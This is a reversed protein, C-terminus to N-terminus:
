PQSVARLRSAVQERTHMKGEVRVRHLSPSCIFDAAAPLYISADAADAWFKWSSKLWPCWDTHGEGSGAAGCECAAEEARECMVSPDDELTLVPKSM